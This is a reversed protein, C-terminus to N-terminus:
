GRKAEGQKMSADMLAEFQEGSPEFLQETDYVQAIMTLLSLPVTVVRDPEEPLTVLEAIIMVLENGVKAVRLGDGFAVGQRLLERTFNAPVGAKNINTTAMM